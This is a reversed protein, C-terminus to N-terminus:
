GPAGPAADDSGPFFSEGKGVVGKFEVPETLGVTNMDGAPAPVLPEMVIGIDMINGEDAFTLDGKYIIIQIHYPLSSGGGTDHVPLLELPMLNEIGIGGSIM